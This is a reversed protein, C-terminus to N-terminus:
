PKPADIVGRASGGLEASTSPDGRVYMFLMAAAAAAPLLTISVSALRKRWRSLHVVKGQQAEEVETLAERIRVRLQEPAQPSPLSQLLDRVQTQTQVYMRASESSELSEMVRMREDDSLEGDVYPQLLQSVDEQHAQTM